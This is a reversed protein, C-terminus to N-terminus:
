LLDSGPALTAPQTYSIPQAYAGPDDITTEISLHGPKGAVIPVGKDLVKQWQAAAQAACALAIATVAAPAAKM